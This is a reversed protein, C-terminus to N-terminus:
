RFSCAWHCCDLNSLTVQQRQIEVIRIQHSTVM